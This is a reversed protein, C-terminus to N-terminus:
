HGLARHGLAGVKLAWLGVALFDQGAMEMDPTTPAVYPHTSDDGSSCSAPSDESPAEEPAGGRFPSGSQM